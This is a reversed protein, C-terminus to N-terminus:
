KAQLVGLMYAPRERDPRIAYDFSAAKRQWVIGDVWDFHRLLMKFIAVSKGDDKMSVILVGDSSLHAAYSLVEALAQDTQLYYLVENFVIVEYASTPRYERLDAVDFRIDQAREPLLQAAMARAASIAVASVDCGTYRAFSAVAPLLTGGSCGVDLIAPRAPAHYKLMTATLANGGDVNITGGLYTSFRTQSMLTDWHQRNAEPSLKEREALRRLPAIAYVLRRARHQLWRKGIQLSTPASSGASDALAQRNEL